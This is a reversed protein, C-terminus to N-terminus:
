MGMLAKIEDIEPDGQGTTDEDGADPMEDPQPKDEESASDGSADTEGGGMMAAMPNQQDSEGVMKDGDKVPGYGFLARLENVQIAKHQALLSAKSQILQPDNIAKADMRIVLDDSYRKALCHTLSDAILDFEPQCAIESTQLLAAYYAAYSGAESIGAAVPSIGHISMNNERAQNRGQVYDLESTGKSMNTIKGGQMVIIQGHNEVGGYKNRLQEKIRDMEAEPIQISPDLEVVLSPNTQNKFGSWTARDLQEHLDIMLSCAALPSQGDATYIPHPWQVAIMSRADIEVGAYSGLGWDMYATSGFNGISTLWYSGDPYQPSPPRPRALATPVVWLQAPEGGINYVVLILATGTLDLQQILQYRFALGSFKPNPRDLIKQLPHDSLIAEHEHEDVQVGDKTRLKPKRVKDKVRTVKLSASMALKAKAHVAVYNWGTFRSAEEFHDSSWWGPAKAGLSIQAAAVTKAEATTPKLNVGKEVIRYPIGSDTKLDFTPKPQYSEDFDGFM